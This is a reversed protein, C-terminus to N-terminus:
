IGHLAWIKGCILCTAMNGPVLQTPLWAGRCGEICWDCKTIEHDHKRYVHGSIYPQQAPYYFMTNNCQECQSTGATVQRKYADGLAKFAPHRRLSDIRRAQEVAEMFLPAGPYPPSPVVQPLETM